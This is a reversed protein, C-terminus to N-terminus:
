RTLKGTEESRLCVTNFYQKKFVCATGKGIRHIAKINKLAATNGKESSYVKRDYCM